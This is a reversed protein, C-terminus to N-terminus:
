KNDCNEGDCTETKEECSCEEEGGCDEKAEEEEAPAADKLSELKEKLAELEEKSMKDVASFVDKFENVVNVTVHKNIKEKTNRKLEENLVKGQEVTLEGKEVLNDILNKAAEGTTAVAGVGALFIKKIGETIDMKSNGKKLFLHTIKHNGYNLMNDSFIKLKLFSKSFILIIILTGM